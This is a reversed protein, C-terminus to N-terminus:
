VAGPQLRAAQLKEVALMMLPQGFVTVLGAVAVAEPSDFLTMGYKAALPTLKEALVDAKTRELVKDGVRVSITSLIDFRTGALFVAAVDVLERVTPAADALASEAPWGPKATDVHAAAATLEKPEAVGHKDQAAQSAPPAEPKAEPEGNLEALAAAAKRLKEADKGAKLAELQRQLRRAELGRQKAEPSKAARERRRAAQPAAPASTANEPTTPTTADNM